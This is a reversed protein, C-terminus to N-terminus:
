LKRDEIMLQNTYGPDNLLRYTRVFAYNRVKVFDVAYPADALAAAVRGEIVHVSLREKRTTSVADAVASSALAAISAEPHHMKLLAALPDVIRFGIMLGVTLTHGDVTTLTQSGSDAVRLRTNLLVVEDVFPLKVHWGPDWLMVRSGLRIRAAREWPMIMVLLKFQGFFSMIRSLLETV